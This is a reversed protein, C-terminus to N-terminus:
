RAARGGAGRRAGLPLEIWVDAGGDPHNAARAVGGHARAIVQVISLGLGSGGRTRAPDARTFREFAEAIFHRRFARGRTACTCSSARRRAGAGRPPDHRRRAAPRERRPQRAGARAPAPRRDAGGGPRRRRRARPRGGRRAGRLARRRRGAARRQAAARARPRARRRRRPRHDAAGRRARRPSRDGRRGLAARRRARRAHPGRAARARDRDQPDGAAHAARAVRRRRLRARARLLAGPEGLMANLTTGLRAIEDDTSGVPLREGPTHETIQAAKRRMQEVPALAASAVGYGALSALLLAVPGGISSCRAPPPAAGRRSRRLRHRRRRAPAPGARHRADGAAARARPRSAPQAALPDDAPAAGRRAGRRGDAAARGRLAPTADHITGDLELIQAFSEDRDVLRSRQADGLRGAPSQVFLAVDAARARLGRNITEDLESEFRQYLGVAILALVIAMVGAFALTVRLRIPLPRRSLDARERRRGPAAPLGRRAGDRDFAHRIPRDIKERLYRVYVDVVNSKNEYEYDWAHELLQFRSMVEGPRRM